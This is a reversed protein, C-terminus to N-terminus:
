VRIYNPSPDFWIVYYTSSSISVASLIYGMQRVYGSTPETLTLEGANSPDLYVPDGASNSYTGNVSSAPITAMCRVYFKNGSSSTIPCLGAIQDINTSSTSANLLEPVLTSGNLTYIKFATVSGTKKWEHLDGATINANSEFRGVEGADYFEGARNNADAGYEIAGDVLLTFGDFTLSPEADINSSSSGATLLRTDAYNDITVGGGTGDSAATIRGQADVTIDANTYSGATVATDDLSVTITGSETVPGGSSSLGTGGAVDISTVSADGELLIKKWTAM